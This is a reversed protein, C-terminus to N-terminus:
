DILEIYLYEGKRLYIRKIKDYPIVTYYSNGEMTFSTEDFTFEVTAASCTELSFESNSTYRVRINESLNKVDAKEVTAEMIAKTIQSFGSNAFMLTFLATMLLNSRLNRM